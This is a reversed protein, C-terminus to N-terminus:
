AHNDDGRNTSDYAAIIADIVHELKPSALSPSGNKVWDELARLARATNGTFGNAQIYQDMDSRANITEDTSLVWSLGTARWVAKVAYLFNKLHHKRVIEVRLQAFHLAKEADQRGNKSEHRSLYKLISAACFDYGQTMAFEAPQIALKTYHTGGVMTSLANELAPASPCGPETGGCPFTCTCQTSLASVDDALKLDNTNMGKGKPQPRPKGYIVPSHAALLIM